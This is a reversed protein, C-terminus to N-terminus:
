QPVTLAKAVELVQGTLADVHVSYSTKDAKGDKYTLVADFELVWYTDGKFTTIYTHNDLDPQDTIISLAEPNKARIEKIAMDLADELSILEEPNIAAAKAADGKLFNAMKLTHTNADVVISATTGTGIGNIEEAVTYVIETRGEAYDTRCVATGVLLKGMNKEFLAIAQEENELAIGFAKGAAQEPLYLMTVFDDVSDVTCQYGLDELGTLKDYGKNTRWIQWFFYGGVMLLVVVVLAGGTWVKKM